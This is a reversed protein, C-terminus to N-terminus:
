ILSLNIIKDLQNSFDYEKTINRINESSFRTKKFQMAIELAKAVSDSDNLIKIVTGCEPKLIECAGNFESSVIYLGMALAEITVNACPDYISPIALCDCAQYFSLVDKRPGFFHVKNGIGLKKALTIFHNLNKEKGVVSLEYNQNTLRALGTLLFSLGKRKFGNGIFLFQFADPNLGLLRQIKINDLSAEFPSAFEHWEVGNHVVQIKKQDVAYHDLIENKVMHSNTFLYKLDASEFCQREKKLLLIHLPNLFHSFHKLSSDVLRRRNLFAAHVGSGARYHSHRTTREMGFVIDMKNQTLWEQCKHDFNLLHKLSIKSASAIPKITILPNIPVTPINAFTTLITVECKKQTFAEALRLTYKELGGTKFLHPKLIAIKKIKSTLNQM